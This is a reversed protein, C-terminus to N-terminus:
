ETFIDFIAQLRHQYALPHRVVFRIRNTGAGGGLLPHTYYLITGAVGDLGTREREGIYQMNLGGELFVSQPGGYIADLDAGLAWVFVDQTPATIQGMWGGKIMYDKDPMWLLDTRVCNADLNAQSTDTIETETNDYFKMSAWGIDNDQWDKEHISNDKCTTFELEFLQETWGDPAYKPSTQLGETDDDIQTVDVKKHAIETSSEIATTTTDYGDKDAQVYQVEMDTNVLEWDSDALVTMIEDNTYHKLGAFIDPTKGSFKFIAKTFDKNTRVKSFAKNGSNNVVENDLKDTAVIVYKKM